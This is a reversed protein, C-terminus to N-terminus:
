LRARIVTRLIETHVRWRSMERKSLNACNMRWSRFFESIRLFRLRANPHALSASTRVLTKESFGDSPAIVFVILRRGWSFCCIFRSIAIVLVTPVTRSHISFLVPNFLVACGILFPQFLVISGSGLWPYPSKLFDDDMSKVLRNRCACTLPTTLIPTVGKRHGMTDSGYAGMRRRGLCVM